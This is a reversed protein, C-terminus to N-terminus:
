DLMRHDECENFANSVMRAIVKRIKKSLQRNREGKLQAKRLKFRPIRHKDSRLGDKYIGANRGVLIHSNVFVEATLAMLVILILVKSNMKEASLSVCNQFKIKSDIM